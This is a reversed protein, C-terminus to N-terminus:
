GKRMFISFFLIGPWRSVAGCLMVPDGGSALPPTVLIRRASRMTIGRIIASKAIGATESETRAEPRWGAGVAFRIRTSVTGAPRM